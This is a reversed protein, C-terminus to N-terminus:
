RWGYNSVLRLWCLAWDASASSGGSCGNWCTDLGVAKKRFFKLQDELRVNIYGDPPLPSMGDDGEGTAYQPPIPGGYIPLAM